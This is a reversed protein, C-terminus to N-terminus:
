GDRLEGALQRATRPLEDADEAAELLDDADPDEGADLAVVDITVAYGGEDDEDFPGVVVQADLAVSTPLLLVEDDGAFGVDTRAVAVADGGFRDLADDDVAPFADALDLPDVLDVDEFLEALEDADDADVVVAVVADVDDDPEVEVVLASGAGVDVDHVGVLDAAVEGSTSGTGDGDSRLLLAAAAGGVLIAAALVAVPVVWGPRRRAPEATLPDHAVVGADAVQDTFATGDFWRYQHRGSPDPHWAPTGLEPPGV